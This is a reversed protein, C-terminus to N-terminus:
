GYDDEMLSEMEDLLRDFVALADEVPKPSTM